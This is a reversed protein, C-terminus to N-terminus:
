KKLEEEESQAKGTFFQSIALGISSMVGVNSDDEENTM